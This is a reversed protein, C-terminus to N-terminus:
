LRKALIVGIRPEVDKPPMLDDEGAGVEVDVKNLRLTLEICGPSFIDENM